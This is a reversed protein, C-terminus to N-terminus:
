KIKAGDNWIMRSEISEADNKLQMQEQDDNKKILDDEKSKSLM